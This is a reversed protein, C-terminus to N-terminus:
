SIVVTGAPMVITEPAHSIRVWLQWAGDGPDVVGGTPGTLVKALYRGAATEWLGDVWDSEEPETTADATYAFEVDDTTPDIVVDNETITVPVKVYQTSLSSITATM